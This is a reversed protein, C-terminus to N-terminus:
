GVKEVANVGIKWPTLASIEVPNVGATEANVGFEMEPTQSARTPTGSKPFVGM